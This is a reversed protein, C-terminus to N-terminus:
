LGKLKNMLEPNGKVLALLSRFDASQEVPRPKKRDVLKDQEADYVLSHEMWYWGSDIIYHLTYCRDCLLSFMHSTAPVVPKGQEVRIQVVDDYHAKFKDHGCCYCKLEGDEPQGM